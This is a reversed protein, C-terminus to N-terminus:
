GLDGGTAILVQGSWYLAWLLVAALASFRHAEGLRFLLLALVVDSAIFVLLGLARLPEIGQALAAWAAAGLAVSLAMYLLVPGALAALGLRILWWLLGALAAILLAPLLAADPGPLLGAVWFFYAGHGLAFAALGPLFGREQPRSLCFDGVVGCALGLCLIAPQGTLMAWFLLCGTALTKIASRWLGIPRLTWHGGYALACLLAAILLANATM